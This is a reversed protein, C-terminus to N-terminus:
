AFRKELAGATVKYVAASAQNRYTVFVDEIIEDDLDQKNRVTGSEASALSLFLAQILLVVDADDGFREDFMRMFRHSRNIRVVTGLTADRAREWLANDDLQDVFTVRAGEKRAQEREQDKLPHRTSEKQARKTRENESLADDPDTPLFEPFDVEILAEAAKSNPDENAKKRLIKAANKWGSKSLRRAEYIAESLAGEAEESLLIESKKVDINFADDATDDILIRGRFAFYDQDTPILGNFREARRILRRNRYVYFGYASSAIMYKKRIEAPNDFAPPHVLQTAEIKVEVRNEADLVVPTARELWRVDRGDWTSDDLNGAANAEDVFLPDFPEVPDGDLLIELDGGNPQLFYFYTVGLNRGLAERTKRISPHNRKHIKEITVVTGYAAGPILENVRQLDVSDPEALLCELRGTEEVHPLDLIVKSWSGGQRASVVEVRDGQSLGASKLGLGYKGLSGPTYQGDAGLALADVLHGRDMGDGDDAIIYRAASNRRAESMDPERELKIAVRRANAAVSNDVIDCIASEPTYGIRAIARLIRGPNIPVETFGEQKGEVQRSTM